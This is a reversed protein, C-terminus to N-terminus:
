RCNVTMLAVMYGIQVNVNSAAIAMSTLFQKYPWAPFRHVCEAIKQRCVGSQQM